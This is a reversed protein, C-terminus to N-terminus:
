TAPLGSDIWDGALALNKPGADPKPRKAVQAPTQAFTARKEKVVRCPPAPANGFALAKAIDHWVTEILAEAPQDVEREGASITVSLINGRVFLWQATGGILGVLPLAGPLKAPSALKYHLNVIPRFDDPVRLGPLLAAAVPPTVALVCRDESSLATEGDAFSLGAARGNEMRSPRLRDGFRIEAGRAALWKLAPDVFAKSLGGRAICPRAAAEGRGLTETLVPWLLKAAGEAASTNLVAVALP